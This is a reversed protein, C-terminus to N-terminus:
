EAYEKEWQRSGALHTRECELLNDHQLIVNLRFEFHELQASARSALVHIMKGLPKPRCSVSAPGRLQQQATCGVEALPSQNAFNSDVLNVLWRKVAKGKMHGRARARMDKVPPITVVQCPSSSKDLMQLM